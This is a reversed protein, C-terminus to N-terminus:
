CSVTFIIRTCCPRPTAQILLRKMMSPAAKLAQNLMDQKKHLDTENIVISTFCGVQSADEIWALDDRPSTFAIPLFAEKAKRAYEMAKESLELQKDYEETKRTSWATHYTLWDFASGILFRDRTREALRLAQTFNRIAEETGEVGFIINPGFFPHLIETVAAEESM